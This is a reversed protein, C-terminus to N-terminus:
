SLREEFAKSAARGATAAIVGIAVIRAGAVIVAV